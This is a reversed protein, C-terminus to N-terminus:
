VFLTIRSDRAEAVYTAVGGLHVGDMLEEAKIGMVDMSMQCAVLRVGSERALSILCPLTQINKRRMVYRFFAPGLGLWNWKSTGLSASGSPLMLSTLKEAISKNRLLKKKRLASLGWFTFYLTADMGMAAAGTAILFAAMVKDMDGSFVVITARNGRPPEGAALEQGAAETKQAQLEDFKEAVKTAVLRGIHEMLAPDCVTEITLNRENM